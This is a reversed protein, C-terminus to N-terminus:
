DIKGEFILGVFCTRNMADSLNYFFQKRNLVNDKLSIDLPFSDYSIIM